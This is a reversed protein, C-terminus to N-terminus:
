GGGPQCGWGPDVVGITTSPLPFGDESTLVVVVVVVTGEEDVTGDVVLVDTPEVVVVVGVLAAGLGAM